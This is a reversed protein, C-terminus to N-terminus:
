RAGEYLAMAFDIITFFLPIYMAPWITTPAGTALGQFVGDSNVQVMFVIGFIGGIFAFLVAREKGLSMGIMGLVLILVSGFYFLNIDM